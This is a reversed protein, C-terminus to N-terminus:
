IARLYLPYKVREEVHGAHAMGEAAALGVYKLAALGLVAAVEAAIQAHAQAAATVHM